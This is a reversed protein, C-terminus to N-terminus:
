TQGFTGVLPESYPGHGKLTYARVKFMYTDEPSMNNIYKQKSRTVNSRRRGNKYFVFEYRVINGNRSGCSPEAWRFRLYSSGTERGRRVREATVNSPPATPLSEATRKSRSRRYRDGNSFWIILTVEYQSNPKRGRIGRRRENNSVSLNRPASPGLPNECGDLDKREVILTQDRVSGLWAITPSIEWSAVLRALGNFKSFSELHLILDEEDVKRRTEQTQIRSPPGEGTRHDRVIVLQFEYETNATLNVFRHFLGLGMSVENFKSTGRERFQVKYEVIPGSGLDIAEDWAPWTVTISTPTVDSFQLPEMRSQSYSPPQKPPTKQTQIGSPPGEGQTEHDRVIVLRFEYVTDEALNVFQYSLALGVSIETYNDDGHERNQVKYEVIPGSGADIEEDWAPWTVRISTPTVDLFQLPEVRSPSYSPPERESLSQTQMRSPPGEGTTHDGVIVVRFEFETDETLREFRYSLNLSLPVEIFNGPGQGKILIKYEAIPGSGLDFAEDWDPWTVTIGTPTIDSFVLPETRNQSYSAPEKRRTEQTQIRSPPGEGTRHDRVIVLQFDYETNATLNVFRHSLGLGMSVENFKSTGHERFQVKYEVIPGSGLDIAEDWAPWTVTISTPTVDSFQLPQMRSQSYSPPQEPPTKQTQIGSPPGEGQTEHDRVIVLRFEYVTDEALNVFRYSLALGVSIETYNDDGHERNQIKYEVIPGSGADIEEDWAPWTVRISTPTVDLFQLPEVRSPSYSPPEKPPTRQTQIRSSPGRGKPHDRMIVLRFEYETDETLNEFRHSLNTGVSVETFNDLGQKMIQIINEVVPGYGIDTAEEWAPWTVTISTPTVDSFKLPEDQTYSPPVKVPTRQTQMESPPGERTPNIGVIVVRFEYETDETLNVFQHSLDSGVSVKQFNDLRKEKIQINYEVVPGFGDDTTRNWAPWSVSVSTPTVNSFHLIDTRNVSYSPPPFDCPVNDDVSLQCYPGQPCRKTGMWVQGRGSSSPQQWHGGRATLRPPTQFYIIRGDGKVWTPIHRRGQGDRTTWVLRGGFTAAGGGRCVSTEMFSCCGVSISIFCFFLSLYHRM